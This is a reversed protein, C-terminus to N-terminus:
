LGIKSAILPIFDLKDEELNSSPNPSKELNLNM